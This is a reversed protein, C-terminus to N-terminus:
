FVEEETNDVQEGTFDAYADDIPPQEDDVPSRTATWNGFMCLDSHRAGAKKRSAKAM